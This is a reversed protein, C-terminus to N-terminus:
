AWQGLPVCFMLGCPYPSRQPGRTIGCIGFNERFKGRNAGYQFKADRRKQRRRNGSSCLRSAISGGATDPSIATRACWEIVRCSWVFHSEDRLRPRGCSDATPSGSRALLKPIPERPASLFAGCNTGCAARSPLPRFTADAFRSQPEQGRLHALIKKPGSKEPATQCGQSDKARPYEKASRRNSFADSDGMYVASIGRDTAGILM